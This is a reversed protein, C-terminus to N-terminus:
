ETGKSKVQEQKETKFNIVIVTILLAIAAHMPYYWVPTPVLEYNSGPDFPIFELLLYFGYVLAVNIVKNKRSRLAAVVFGVIMAISCGLISEWYYYSKSDKAIIAQFVYQESINALQAAVFIAGISYLIAYFIPKIHGDILYSM